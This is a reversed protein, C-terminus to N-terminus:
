LYIQEPKMMQKTQPNLHYQNVMKNVVQEIIYTKCQEMIQFCVIIAESFDMLSVGM